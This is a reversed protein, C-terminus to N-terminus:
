SSSGDPEEKMALARGMVSDLRAKLKVMAARAGHERVIKEMEVKEIEAAVRMELPADAIIKELAALNPIM